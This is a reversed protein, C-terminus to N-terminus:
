SSCSTEDDESFEQELATESVQETTTDGQTPADAIGLEREAIPLVDGKTHFYASIAEAREEILKHNANSDLVSDMHSRVLAAVASQSTSAAEWLRTIRFMRRAFMLKDQIKDANELLLDTPRLVVQGDQIEGVDVKIATMSYAERTLLNSGHTEKFERKPKPLLLVGALLRYFHTTYQQEDLRIRPKGQVRTAIARGPIIISPTLEYLLEKGFLDSANVSGQKGALEYEGRGGSTRLAIRM